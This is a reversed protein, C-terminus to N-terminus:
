RGWNATFVGGYWIGGEFYGSEFIGNTWVGSKWNSNRFITTLRLGTEIGSISTAGTIGSFDKNITIYTQEGIEEIDLIKYTKYDDNTGYYYYPTPNGDNVVWVDDGLNFKFVGNLILKNIWLSNNVSDQEVIFGIIQIEEVIGGYWNGSNFNIAYAVGGYWDGGNWVGTNWISYKNYESSITNGDNDKNLYSHFEGNSFKGSHWIATRTNFAKTGFRSISDNKELFHGNYWMGNEFDGGYWNGGIWYSPKSDCNFTGGYWNGFVWIGGRFDGDYWDGDNWIGNYWVGDNWKGSYMRGDYWTGGNWIGGFWRGGFWKSSMNNSLKSINAKLGKYEVMYSNWIGNYWDGKIWTGSMWTGGFWRGCNWNGKYWVVGNEDQGIVADSIEGELIWPYKNYLETLSLGDSLEYRYKNFNINILSYSYGNILLNDPLLEIARKADKEVSVDMIDIPQYNLFPDKKTFSIIGTDNSPINIGFKKDTYFSYSGNVGYVIQYGFYDRNLYNSSFSGGNFSLSIADGVSLNHSQTTTVMLYNVSGTAYNSTSSIPINIKRELNIINLSLENSDDTYVLGTLQDKIDKDSLLIKSYSDTPVKFNIENELNVFSDYYSIPIKMERLTQSRHINNLMQLDDSVEGLTNRSLVDVYLVNSGYDFSLKKHFEVIYKNIEEDYYKNMVLLRSTSFTGLNTHLNVDVFTNLWISYWEFELESGIILKNTDFNTDFYINADTANGGSNGPINVYRPMVLFRKSSNFLSNINSLYDLINYTPKYGFKLFADKYDMSYTGADIIINSQMNYYSTKNNFKTSLTCISGNYDLRYGYSVPHLNFNLILDGGGLGSALPAYAFYDNPNINNEYNWIRDPYLHSEYLIQNGATVGIGAFKNLNIISVTAGFSKLDNVITEEFDVFCYLYSDYGINVRKNVVFTNRIIDCEMYLVDGIDCPYNLDKKFIILYRNLFVIGPYITGIISGTAGIIKSRNINDIDPALGKIAEVSTNIDTSTFEFYTNAAETFITSFLVQNSTDFSTYYEFTKEVDKYYNLWNYENSKNTVELYGGIEDVSFTVSNPLRYNQSNDFFNLKSGVEYDLFLLSSNYKNNFNSDIEYISGTYGSYYLSSNNGCLYLNVGDFNFLKNVYVDYVSDVSYTSSINNFTVGVYSFNSIDFKYVKDSAIYVSSSGSISSISNIDIKSTTLGLYIFDFEKVSNSVDKFLVNGGNTVMLLIEKDSSVSYTSSSTLPWINYSFTSIIMDNIDDVLLYEETPEETDLYKSIKRKYFVWSNYVYNMEIFVGSEGSIFVTDYKKFIVKNYSCGDFEVNYIKTWNYGGDNTYYITNFKGVLIGRLDDVFDISTLTNFEKIDIKSIEFNLKSVKLLTGDKGCIWYFKSTESISMLDSKYRNNVINTYGSQYNAIIGFEGISIVRQPISYTYGSDYYSQTSHKFIDYYSIEYINNYDVRNRLLWNNKELFEIPDGNEYLPYYSNKLRSLHFQKKENVYGLKVSISYRYSYDYTSLDDTRILSNNTYKYIGNEENFFSYTKYGNSESIYTYNGPFYDTPDISSLITVQTKQDKILVRHGEKLIIGDIILGPQYTGIGAISDTTAVDVEYYNHIIDNILKVPTFKNKLTLGYEYAYKNYYEDRNNSIIEKKNITPISYTSYQSSSPGVYWNFITNQNIVDFINTLSNISVFTSGSLCVSYLRTKEIDQKLSDFDEKKLVDSKKYWRGNDFNKNWM